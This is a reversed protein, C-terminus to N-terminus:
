LNKKTKSLAIFINLMSSETVADTQKLVHYQSDLCSPYLRVRSKQELTQCLTALLPKGLTINMNNLTINLYIENEDLPICAKVTEKNLVTTNPWIGKPALCEALKKSIASTEANRIDLQKSYHSVVIAVVVGLMLVLLAFKWLWTLGHGIQGKKNKPLNM